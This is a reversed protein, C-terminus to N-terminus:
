PMDWPPAQGLLPLEEELLCRRRENLVEVIVQEQLRLDDAAHDGDDFLLAAPENATRSRSEAIVIIHPRVLLADFWPTAM